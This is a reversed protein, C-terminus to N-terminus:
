DFIDETKIVKVFNNPNNGIFFEFSANKSEYANELIPISKLTRLKRDTSIVYYDIKKQQTDKRFDWYCLGVFGDCATAKDSWVAINQANPLSNLYDMAEYSGEGMGKLNVLFKNPLLESAYALYNPKIFALSAFLIMMVLAYAVPLKLYKKIKEINLLESIGISALVFSLPYVMIQYRVTAIVNNVTSGLYFFLIFIIIYFATISNRELEKKRAMNIVAFIIALLIIPSISFILSYFDALMAKIYNRFISLPTTGKSSTVLDELQPDGLDMGIGKPAAVIEQIDFINIKLFIHLFVIAIFLLFIIGVTKILKRRHMTLFDFLFGSLKTKFLLIDLAFFGIVGVFFPWTSAFVVNGVAAKILISFKVWTAPFFVFASVMATLFLVSYNILALRLYKELPMEKHAHLIYELFFIAFFYVFLINAVYKTIVSLGLFFGSLLLFKRENNKLFAFLSLTSPATLIWLMSDSNIILSIGLLIPSLGIFILSFKAVTEGLLKRVLWYFLPLIALTFFFVPLRLHFYMARIQQLQESTKPAYRLDKLNEPKEKLFPLGAGSVIALTIGPKDSIDTKKWKMEGIANWFTPVRGYSWFSEDVGSFNTLRSYGFYFSSAIIALFILFTIAKNKM